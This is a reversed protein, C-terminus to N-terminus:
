CCVELKEQDIYNLYGLEVFEDVINMYTEKPVRFTYRLCFKLKAKTIIKDYDCYELFKKAMASHLITGVKKKQAM